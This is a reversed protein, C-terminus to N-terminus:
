DQGMWRGNFFLLRRWGDYDEFPQRDVKIEGEFKIKHRLFGWPESKATELAPNAYIIQRSQCDFTRRFERPRLSTAVKLEHKGKAVIVKTFVLQLDPDWTWQYFGVLPKTGVQDGDLFYRLPYATKPYFFLVACKGEPPALHLTEGSKWSPALLFEKRRKGAGEKAAIFIYGDAQLKAIRFSTRRYLDPLDDFGYDKDRLREFVDWSIAEVIDDAGYIVLAYIIVEETDVWVPFPTVDVAVDRGFAVRYVEIGLRKDHIFPEGLRRHVERQSTEGPTVQARFSSLQDPVKSEIPITGCASLNSVLLLLFFTRIPM